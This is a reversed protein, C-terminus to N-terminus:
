KELTEVKAKKVTKTKKVTQTVKVSPDSPAKVLAEDLKENIKRLETEIFTTWKYLHSDVTSVEQEIFSMQEKYESLINLLSKHLEPEQSMTNSLKELLQAEQKYYENGAEIIDKLKSLLSAIGGWTFLFSVALFISLFINFM